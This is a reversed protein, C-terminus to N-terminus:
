PAAWSPSEATLATRSRSLRVAAAGSAFLFYLWWSLSFGNAMETVLYGAMAAFVARAESGILPDNGAQWLRVVIWATWACFLAFALLGLEGVIELLINHAVYRHGGASLPAYRDWAALFAAAGVGTLPREQLVVGLVEWAHQRGEVSVDTEYSTITRTREWFTSPAFAVVGAIIAGALVLKRAPTVAKGRFLVLAAAVAAGVAGSRSHTLVIAAVQAALVAAFLIRVGRRKGTLVGYIAFPMVAILAMALRNPDGYLGHWHTRFGDVLHDDKRWVDIAGLAPGLSALAGVLMFRRLRVPGDVANQVVVFMLAMKAGEVLANLTDRQSITWALSLPIFALYAFLPLAGPLGMRVREGSVMRHMVLAFASVAAAVYALRFSEFFPWWYMPNSYLMVVFALTAGHLLRHWRRGSRELWAQRELLAADLTAADAQVAM